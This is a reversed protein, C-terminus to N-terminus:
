RRIKERHSRSANRGHILNLATQRDQDVDTSSPVYPQTAAPMPPQERFPKPAYKSHESDNGDDRIPASM